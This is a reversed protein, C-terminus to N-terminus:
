AIIRKPINSLDSLNFENYNIVRDMPIIEQSEFEVSEYCFTVFFRNRLASGKEKCKEYFQVTNFGDGAECYESLILCPNSLFVKEEAEKNSLAMEVEYGMSELHGKVNTLIKQNKGTLFVVTGEGVNEQIKQKLHASKHREKIEGQHITDGGMAGKIVAATSGASDEEETHFLAAEKPTEKKPKEDGAAKGIAKEVETILVAVQVPKKMFHSVNLYEFLYEMHVHATLVFVPVYQMKDTRKRIKEILQHGSINPMLEDTIILDYKEENLAKLAESGDHATKITYGANELCKELLKCTAVDDDTILIKKAM